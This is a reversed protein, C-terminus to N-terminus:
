LIVRRSGPIGFWNIQGSEGLVGYLYDGTTNKTEDDTQANRFAKLNEADNTDMFAFQMLTEYHNQKEAWIWISGDEAELMNNVLLSAADTNGYGAIFIDQRPKTYQRDGNTQAILEVNRYNGNKTVINGGIDVGPGGFSPTGSLKMLAGESLYIGAGNGTSECENWNVYGGNMVIATGPAAYVAGGHGTTRSYQLYAGETITLKGGNQVNTIGGNGEATYNDKVGDLIINTLLLNGSVTFMSPGAFGRKITSTTGADRKPFQAATASATTLTVMGKVSSPLLVPVNLTYEAVLMEIHVGNEVDYSTSGTHDQYFTEKELATFAGYPLALTSADTEAPVFDGTLETYVAPVFLSKSE